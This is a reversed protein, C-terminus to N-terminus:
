RAGGHIPHSQAFAADHGQLTIDSQTLLLSAHGGAMAAPPCFVTIVDFWVLM